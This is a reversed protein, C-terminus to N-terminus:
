SEFLETNLYDHDRLAQKVRYHHNYNLDDFLGSKIGHKQLTLYVHNEVNVSSDLIGASVSTVMKNIDRKM